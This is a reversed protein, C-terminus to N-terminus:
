PGFAASALAKLFAALDLLDARTLAHAHHLDTLLTELKAGDLEVAYAHRIFHRFGLLPELRDASEPRILRPRAGELEMAAGRLLSRHWGPGPAPPAALLREARELVSEVATYYRHVNWAILARAGRDQVGPAQQLAVCDEALRDLVGLDAEVESALRLLQLRRTAEDDTM